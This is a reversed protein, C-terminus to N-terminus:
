WQDHDFRGHIRTVIELYNAENEPTVYGLRIMFDLLVIACNPKFQKAHMKPIVDVLSLCEFSEVEGDSPRPEFPVDSPIRLDYVYEVEPQLWGNDNRYFYSVCGVAQAYKRVIDEPVSAEEMAEKVACEFVSLGSPIGGAVTNDFLGPWTQKTKARRPVWIKCSREGDIVEDHYVTLHMGYTVIGFIAAAAREMMFAYNRSDDQIDAGEAPSDLPGFSNRYVAYMEARWKKPGMQEPFVGADRWRECLEKMVASRKAPTDLHSAFAISHRDDHEVFVWSGSGEKKLEEVVSPRLLGIAPSLPDSSLRWSVLNEPEESGRRPSTVSFNDCVQVIDLYTKASLSSSM